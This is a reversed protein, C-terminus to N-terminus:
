ASATGSKRSQCTVLREAYREYEEDVPGDLEEEAVVFRGPIQSLFDSADEERDNQEESRKM